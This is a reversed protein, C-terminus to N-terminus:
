EFLAKQPQANLAWDYPIYTFASKEPLTENGWKRCFAVPGGDAEFDDPYFEFIQSVEVSEGNVRVKDKHLCFEKVERTLQEQLRQPTFAEPPLEPCGVSACNLAMHIRPDNFEKRVIDNELKYLSWPEGGFTYETFYFFDNKDDIVSKMTPRDTVAYLVYANYANIWYALRHDQTTFLKPHSHPSFQSIAYLYKELANRDAALAKYDVRGQDDVVKKLVRDLVEHPFQNAKVDLTEKPKEISKTTFCASCALLVVPPSLIGIRM